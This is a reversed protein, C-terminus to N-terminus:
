LASKDFAVPVPGYILKLLPYITESDTFNWAFLFFLLFFFGSTKIFANVVVSREFSSYSRTKYIKYLFQEFFFFFTYIILVM